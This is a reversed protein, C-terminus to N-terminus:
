SGILDETNVYSGNVLQEFYVKWKESPHPYIQPPIPLISVTACENWTGTESFDRMCANASDNNQHAAAIENQLNNYRTEYANITPVNANKIANYQAPEFLRNNCNNCIDWIKRRAVPNAHSDDFRVTDDNDM